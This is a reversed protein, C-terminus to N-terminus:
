CLRICIRSMNCSNKKNSCVIEEGHIPKNNYCNMCKCPVGEKILGCTKSAKYNNLKRSHYMCEKFLNDSSCRNANGSKAVCVCYDCQKCSEADGGLSICRNYKNKGFMTMCDNNSFNEYQKSRQQITNYVILYILLLILLIYIYRCM